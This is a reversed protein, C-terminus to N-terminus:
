PPRGCICGPRRRTGGSRSSETVVCSANLIGLPEGAGSGTLLAKDRYFGLGRGCAEAIQGMGGPVDESLEGSFRILGTLKKANLTMSRAQPSAESITGAESTFSATFGGFLSSAHSGIVLAPIKLENTRMPQLFCRPLILERELAVSHIQASQEVPVLFGGSSPVGELMSRTTLGEHHRGSHVASFFDTNRDPWQYGDGGFLDRWQKSESPGRLAYPGATRTQGGGLTEAAIRLAVPETAPRRGWEEHRLAELRELLQERDRQHEATSGGEKRARADYM